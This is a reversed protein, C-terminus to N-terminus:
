ASAASAASIHEQAGVYSCRLHKLHRIFALLISVVKEPPLCSFGQSADQGLKVQGAKLFAVIDTAAIDDGKPYIQHLVANTYVSPQATTGLWQKDPADLGATDHVEIKESSSQQQLDQM